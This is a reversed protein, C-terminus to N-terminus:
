KMDEYFIIGRPFDSNNCRITTKFEIMWENM